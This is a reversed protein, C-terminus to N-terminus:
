MFQKGTQDKVHLETLMIIVLGGVLATLLKTCAESIIYQVVYESFRNVGLAATGDESLKNPDLFVRPEGTLSDQLYM